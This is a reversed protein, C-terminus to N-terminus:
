DWWNFLDNKMLDMLYNLDRQKQWQEYDLIRKIQKRDPKGLVDTQDNWIIKTSSYDENIIRDCLIAAIRM